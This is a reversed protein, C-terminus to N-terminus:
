TILYVMSRLFRSLTAFFGLWGNTIPNGGHGLGWLGMIFLAIGQSKTLVIGAMSIKRAKLFYRELLIIITLQTVYMSIWRGYDWAVIFLPLIILGSYLVTKRNAIYWESYKIPLFGLIALPVYFLYAPYADNFHEIAQTLSMELVAIAGNCNMEPEFGRTILLDCILKSQSQTGHFYLVPMISILAFVILALRLQLTKQNNLKRIPHSFFYFLASIFVFNVESSLISLAFFIVVTYDILILKFRFTNYALLVILSFGLWEKRIFVNPDWAIFLLFAPNLLLFISTADLNKHIQPVLIAFFVLTVLLMLSACLIILLTTSSYPLLTLISGTLGRRVFGGAYNILWEGTAWNHGNKAVIDIMRMAIQLYAFCYVIVVLVKATRMKM